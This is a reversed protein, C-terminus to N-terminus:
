ISLPQDVRLQEGEDLDDMALQLARVARRPHHALHQLPTEWRALRPDLAKHTLVADTGTV